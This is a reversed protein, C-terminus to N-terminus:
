DVQTQLVTPISTEEAAIFTNTDVSHRLGCSIPVYDNMVVSSLKTAMSKYSLAAYTIVIGM